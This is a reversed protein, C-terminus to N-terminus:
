APGRAPGGTAADIVSRLHDRVTHLATVDRDTRALLLAGEVAALVVTALPEAREAPVGHRRLLDAVSQQWAAYGARCAAGIPDSTAAADLAVSAIPCGNRFDSSVLDAALADVVAGLAGAADPAAAAAAAIRTTVAAAAERVAEAALQEKGGPFHFYLSGKPAGGAAVLQNLGTGHYGQSRFLGAAADLMQRRSDSRPM